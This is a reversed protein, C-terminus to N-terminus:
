DRFIIESGKSEFKFPVYLLDSLRERVKPQLDPEVFLLMFGGGGAGLLKGGIAGAKIAEGYIYNIYDTSVNDSLQRKLRWAEDLLRGFDALEGSGMLIQTGEAVMEYFRKLIQGNEKIREIQPKAIESATRPFGTFFLMLHSELESLRPTKVIPTVEIDSDSFDIRNFGGFASTVQDQSGVAEHILDQEIHIAYKALTMKGPKLDQLGYLANLLGVTFASSTGMGARAPLDASHHIDIGGTIALYKLTERVSPHRIEDIEQVRELQSWTVAYKHEFFPPLWRCTLYCYKNISTALVAGPHESYYVPYDTGGGFFSVRFATRSIVFNSV